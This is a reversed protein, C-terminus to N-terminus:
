RVDTLNLERKAILSNVFTEGTIDKAQVKMLQSKIVKLMESSNENLENIKELMEFYSGVKMYSKSPILLNMPDSEKDVFTLVGNALYEYYRWTISGIETDKKNILVIGFKT